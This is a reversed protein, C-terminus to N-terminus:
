GEIERPYDVSLGNFILDYLYAYQRAVLRADFKSWAWDRCERGLEELRGRDSILEKTIEYVDSKTAHVVPTDHYIFRTFNDLTTVPVLGMAASEIANLGFAMLLSVIHVHCHSKLKLCEKNPTNEIIVSEVADNEAALRNMADIILDSRKNRRYNQGAPAHCIKITGDYRREVQPVEDRDLICPHLHYFSTQLKKYISWDVCTIAEFGNRAHFEAIAPGNNRLHSGHYQFVANRPSIYKEWQIGTIPVLQRGIHFFDAQKILDAAEEMDGPSCKGQQDNVLVDRDYSLYDDQFIVCRAMHNTYKNLSRMLRTHQGAINFDSIVLIRMGHKKSPANEPVLRMFPDDPTINDILRRPYTEFGPVVHSPPRYMGERRAYKQVAGDDNCKLSIEFEVADRVARSTDSNKMWESLQAAMGSDINDLQHLHQIIYAESKPQDSALVTRLEQEEKSEVKKEGQSKEDISDSEPKETDQDTLLKAQRFKRANQLLLAIDNNDPYKQSAVELIPLGAALSNTSQLLHCYNIIADLYFPDKELARSFYGAASGLQKNQYAIVGLNNLIEKNDPDEKLRALFEKEAENFNGQSFLEEGRTLVQNDM